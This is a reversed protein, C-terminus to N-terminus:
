AAESNQPVSFCYTADQYILPEIPDRVKVTEAEGIFITHTGYPVAAAKKCFINIQADALYTVGEASTMWNGLGFREEAPVAGSFASSLAAQERRLVNVCFRRALLMIDHLLTSQNICVILSPPDLSLSTVATATMGHRRDRDASTIVSVAAPFRRLALKFTERLEDSAPNLSMLEEQVACQEQRGIIKMSLLQM